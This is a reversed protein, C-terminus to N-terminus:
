VPFNALRSCVRAANSALPVSAGNVHIAEGAADSFLSLSQFSSDQIFEQLTM